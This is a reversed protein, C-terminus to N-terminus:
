LHIEVGGPSKREELRPALESYGKIYGVSVLDNLIAIVSIHIKRRKDRWNKYDEKHYGLNAYLGVLAQAKGDYREYVIANSKVSNRTNRMAAIRRILYRKLKIMEVSNGVHPTRLVDAQVNAINKVDSAYAYLASIAYLQYGRVPATHNAPQVLVEEVPLLPSSLPELEADEAIIGRARYEAKCDIQIWLHMLRTIATALAERTGSTLEQEMDGSMARIIATPTLVTCGYMALTYVADMVALDFPTICVDNVIEPADTELTVLTAVPKRPGLPKLSVQVGLKLDSQPSVLTNAVLSTNLYHTQIHPMAHASMVDGAFSQTNSM